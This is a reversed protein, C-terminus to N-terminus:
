EDFCTSDWHHTARKREPSRGSEKSQDQDNAGQGGSAAAPGGLDGFILIRMRQRFLREDDIRRRDAPVASSEHEPLMWFGRVNLAMMAFSADDFSM